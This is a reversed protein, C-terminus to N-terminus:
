RYLLLWALTLGPVDVRMPAAAAALAMRDQHGVVHTALCSIRRAVSDNHVNAIRTDGVDEGHVVGSVTRNPEEGVLVLVALM